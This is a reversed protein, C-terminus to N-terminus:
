TLLNEASEVDWASSIAPCDRLDLIETLPMLFRHLFLPPDDDVFGLFLTLADLSNGGM